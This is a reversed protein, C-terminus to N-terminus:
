EQVAKTGYLALRVEDFEINGDGDYTDQLFAKMRDREALLLDRQETLESVSDYVDQIEKIDISIDHSLYQSAFQGAQKRFDVMNKNYFAVEDIDSLLLTVLETLSKLNELMKPDLHSAGVPNIDGILKRVIDYVTMIEGKLKANYADLENQDNM